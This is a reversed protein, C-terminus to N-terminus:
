EQTQTVQFALQGDEQAVKGSFLQKGGLRFSAIDQLSVPMFEGQLLQQLQRVNVKKEAMVVRGRVPFQQWQTQLLPLQQSESLTPSDAVQPFLGVPLNLFWSIIEEDLLMRVKFIVYSFPKLAQLQKLPQAMPLSKHGSILEQLGGLLRNFTRTAIRLETVTLENRSVDQHSIRGGLCLDALHRVALHEIAMYAKANNAAPLECSMMLKDAETSLFDTGWGQCLALEVEFNLGSILQSLTTHLVERFETKSESFIKVAQQQCRQDRTLPFIQLMAANEGRILERPKKKKIM